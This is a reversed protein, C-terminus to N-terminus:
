SRLRPKPCSTSVRELTVFLMRSRKTTSQAHSARFGNDKKHLVASEDWPDQIQHILKGAHNPAYMRRSPKGWRTSITSVHEQTPKPQGPIGGSESSPLSTALQALQTEIMQNFSLQNKMASTFSEMTFNLNELVKENAALKKNLSENIRAQGFVLDKISPQNNFTNSYNGGNQDNFPFNPRSKWGQNNLNNNRFGNTTGNNIFSAEERTELCDNGSHGVNGCVECTMHVDMIKTTEMNSSAELKKMLLDMKAVIMDIGDVQHVGHNCPQLHDGDWGQNAMVKEILEKTAPVQLSFFPEGAAADLHERSTRKLRHYFTQVLFV